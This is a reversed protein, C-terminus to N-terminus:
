VSAKVRPSLSYLLHAKDQPIRYSDRIVFTEQIRARTKRVGTKGFRTVKWLREYATLRRGIRGIRKLALPLGISFYHYDGATRRLAMYFRLDDFPVTLVVGVRCAGELNCLLSNFDDLPLHHAVRACLIVDFTQDGLLAKLDLVSGTMDAGLSPNVDLTTVEIGLSSLYSSVVGAGVGVELVTKPRFDLVASIQHWYTAWRVEDVYREFRYYEPPIQEPHMEM